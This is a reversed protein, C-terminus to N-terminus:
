QVAMALIRYQLSLETVAYGYGVRQLAVVIRQSCGMALARYRLSLERGAYGYGVRTVALGFRKRRLENYTLM